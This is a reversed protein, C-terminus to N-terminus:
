YYKNGFKRLIENRPRLDDNYLNKDLITFNKNLINVNYQDTQIPITFM